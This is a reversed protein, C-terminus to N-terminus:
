TMCRATTYFHMLRFFPDSEISARGVVHGHVNIGFAASVVGGLAGLDVLQGDDYLFARPAFIAGNQYSFIDSGAIQGSQNIAKANSALGGPLHGLDVILSSRCSDARLPM